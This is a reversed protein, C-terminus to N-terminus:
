ARGLPLHVSKAQGIHASVEVIERQLCCCEGSLPHANVSLRVPGPQSVGYPVASKGRVGPLPPMEVTGTGADVPRNEVDRDVLGRTECISVIIEDYSRPGSLKLRSRVVRPAAGHVVLTRSRVRVSMM